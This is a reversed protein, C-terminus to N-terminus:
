RVAACAMGAIANVYADSVKRQKSSTSYSLNEKISSLARQRLELYCTRWKRSQSATSRFHAIEALLVLLSTEELSMVEWLTNSRRAVTNPKRNQALLISDKSCTLMFMSYPSATAYKHTLLLRSYIRVTSSHYPVRTIISTQHHSERLTTRLVSTSLGQKCYAIIDHMGPFTKVPLSDFPDACMVRASPNQVGNFINKAQLNVLTDQVKENSYNDVKPRQLGRRQRAEHTAFMVHSRIESREKRSKPTGVDIFLLTSPPESAGSYSFAPQATRSFPRDGSQSEAKSNSSLSKDTQCVAMALKEKRLKLQRRERFYEGSSRLVLHLFLSRVATAGM